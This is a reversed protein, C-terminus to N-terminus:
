VSIEVPLFDSERLQFAHRVRFVIAIGGEGGVYDERERRKPAM